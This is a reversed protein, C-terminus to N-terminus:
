EESHTIANEKTQVRFLNSVGGILLPIGNLLLYAANQRKYALVFTSISAPIVVGAYAAGKAKLKWDNSPYSLIQGISVLGLGIPYFALLTGPLLLIKNRM